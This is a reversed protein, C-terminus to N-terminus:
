VLRGMQQGGAVLVCVGSELCGRLSRKWQPLDICLLVCRRRFGGHFFEDFVPGLLCGVLPDGIGM